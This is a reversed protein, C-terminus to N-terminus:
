IFTECVYRSKFIVRSNKYYENDEKTMIRFDKKVKQLDKQVEDWFTRPKKESHIVYSGDLDVRKIWWKMSDILRQENEEYTFQFVVKM